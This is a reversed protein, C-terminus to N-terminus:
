KVERGCTFCARRHTNENVDVIEGCCVSCRGAVETTTGVADRHRPVNKPKMAEDEPRSRRNAIRKKMEDILQKINM